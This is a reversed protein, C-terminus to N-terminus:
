RSCIVMSIMPWFISISCTTLPSVARLLMVTAPIFIGAGPSASFSSSFVAATMWSASCSVGRRSELFNVM